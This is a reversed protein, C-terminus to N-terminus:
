SVNSPGGRLKRRARVVQTTLVHLHEQAPQPNVEVSIVM